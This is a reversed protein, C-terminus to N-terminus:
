HIFDGPDGYGTAVWQLGEVHIHGALQVVQLSKNNFVRANRELWLSWCVLAFLTDFGKHHLKHVRNCTPLWWDVIIQGGAPVLPHFGAARLIRFWVERSYVCSLM